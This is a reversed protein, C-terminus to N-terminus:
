YCSVLYGIFLDVCVGSGAGAKIGPSVINGGDATYFRENGACQWPKINQAIHM